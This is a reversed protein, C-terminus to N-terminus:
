TNQEPDNFIMINAEYEVSVERYIYYLFISGNLLKHMKAM